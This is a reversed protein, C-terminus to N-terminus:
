IQPHGLQFNSDLLSINDPLHFQFHNSISLCSSPPSGQLATVLCIPRIPAAYNAVVSGVLHIWGNGFLPTILTMAVVKKSGISGFMTFFFWIFTPSGCDVWTSIWKTRIQRLLAVPIWVLHRSTLSPSFYSIVLGMEADFSFVEPVTRHQLPSSDLQGPTGDFSSAPATYACALPKCGSLFGKIPSRPLSLLGFQLGIKPRDM